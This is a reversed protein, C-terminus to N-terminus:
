GGKVGKELVHKQFWRVRIAYLWLSRTFLAGAAFGFGFFLATGPLLGAGLYFTAGISFFVTASFLTTLLGWPLRTPILWLLFAALLSALGWYAFPMVDDFKAYGVFLLPINPRLLAPLAFLLHVAVLLARVGWAVGRWFMPEGPPPKRDPM